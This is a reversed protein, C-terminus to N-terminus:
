WAISPEIINVPDGPYHSLGPWPIRHVRQDPPRVDLVAGYNAQTLGDAVVTAGNPSAWLVDPFVEFACCTTHRDWTTTVRGTRASFEWVGVNVGGAMNMATAATGGCLISQGGSTALPASACYQPPATAAKVSAGLALPFSLPLTRLVPLRPSAGDAYLVATTGQADVDAPGFPGGVALTRDNDLWTLSFDSTDAQFPISALQRSAVRTLRGALPYVSLTVLSPHWVSGNGDKTLAVVALRRGDPALAAGALDNGPLAPAPLRTLAATGAAPSFTVQYLTVLRASDRHALHWPQAGALWVDPSDTAFVPGFSQGPAPPRVTALLAGTGTARITIQDPGEYAPTGMATAEAYYAPVSESVPRTLPTASRITATGCAALALGLAAALSQRLVPMWM